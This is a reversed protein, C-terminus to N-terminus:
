ASRSESKIPALMPHSRLTLTSSSSSSSPLELSVSDEEVESSSVLEVEPGSLEPAVDSLKPVPVLMDPNSVDEPDLQDVPPDDPMPVNPDVPM